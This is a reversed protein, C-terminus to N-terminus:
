REWGLRSRVSFHSRWRLRSGLAAMSKLWRGTGEGRKKADRLEEQRRTLAQFVTRLSIQGWALYPSLRSCSDWGTLPSSLEDSYAEGRENLFTRLLDQAISEGGRQRGPRDGLHRVGCSQADQLLGAEIVESSVLSLRAPPVQQQQSMLASWKKAWSGEDLEQHRVTSVGDQRCEVWKIGKSHLWEAVQGNRHLSVGNGVEAHSFVTHIPVVAHLSSLVEVIPGIRFTIGDGGSRLRVSADMEALGENIFGHHAEHYTDSTLHCPEYVALLLLPLDSRAALSLPEHDTLRADRKLWVVNM